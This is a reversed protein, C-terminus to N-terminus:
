HKITRRREDDRVERRLLKGAKSKPLMDRFEVYHPIKYPALRERCWRILERAGVGRVDEKPVVVAKIREGAKPDPVGVVCAELIAEHDQLVAEIESASVRYGKYKILDSRRDVYYLNDKEIKVYDGMRYWRKGEAMIFSKATEEPNQWYDMIHPSTVIAEGSAGEELPELTEPNVVKIEKSSVVKGLSRPPPEVDLRSTSILGTETSGYIQFISRNFMRKFKNYIEQPLVDGGSWCYRLSSLDYSMLRDNELIMRYLTPTGVLMTVKHRQIEFLIADVIPQPMVITPNGANFGFAFFSGQGLIHFLPLVIIFPDNGNSIHGRTGESLDSIIRPLSIHTGPVGKPRGTTGGTYMIYALHEKPNIDVKPLNPAYKRLLNNFFHVEKVKTVTGRPIRDFLRGSLRKYWPLLDGLGTIIITKLCTTQFVDFVYGCNTDMCIITEAGSDNIQYSIEYPTYIPSTPIVIGGIKLIALYSIIWQPCNGMYLMVKNNDKVDLSYLATAVRNVMENLKGYSFRTGLYILATKDPCDRTMREMSTLLKEEGTQTGKM